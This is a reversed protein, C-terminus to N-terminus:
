VENNIFESPVSQSNSLYKLTNGKNQIRIYKNESKKKYDLPGDKWLEPAFNDNCVERNINNFQDYPILEIFIKNCAAEKIFDDVKENKSIQCSMCWKTKNEYKEDCKVCYNDFYENHFVLIYDKTDPSQSIGYIKDDM